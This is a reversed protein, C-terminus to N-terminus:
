AVKDRGEWHKSGQHGLDQVARFGQKGGAEGRFDDGHELVVAEKGAM